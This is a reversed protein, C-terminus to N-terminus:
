RGIQLPESLVRVDPDDGALDLILRSEGAGIEPSTVLPVGLVINERLLDMLTEGPLWSRQWPNPRMMLIRAIDELDPPWVVDAGTGCEWCRFTPEYPRMQLASRCHPSPCRVIPRSWNVEAYAVGPVAPLM